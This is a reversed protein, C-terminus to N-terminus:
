AAGSYSTLADMSPRELQPIEVPSLTLGAQAALKNVASVSASRYPSRRRQEANYMDVDRQEARLAREEDFAQRRENLGLGRLRYANDATWQERDRALAEDYQRRNEREARDYEEQRRAEQERQFQLAEQNASTSADAARDAAKSQAHAAIATAGTTAVGGIIAAIVPAPM